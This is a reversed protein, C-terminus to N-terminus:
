QYLKNLDVVADLRRDIEKLATGFWFDAPKKTSTLVIELPVFPTSRYLASVEVEYEDLYRKLDQHPTQRTDYDDFVFRFTDTTYREFVRPPPSSFIVKKGDLLIWRPRPPWAGEGVDPSKRGRAGELPTELPCTCDCELPLVAKRAIFSKGMDSDGTIWYVKPKPKAIPQMGHLREIGGHYKIFQVPHRDAVEAITAGSKITQVVEILDSRKGQGERDPVVGFKWPGALRTEEKECYAYAAANTSTRYRESWNM